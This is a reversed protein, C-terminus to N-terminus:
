RRGVRRRRRRAAGSGARDEVAETARVGLAVQELPRQGLRRDPGPAEVEGRARSSSRSLWRSVLTYPSRLREAPRTWSRLRGLRLPGRPVRSARGSGTRRRRRILRAAARRREPRVRVSRLAHAPVPFRVTTEDRAIPEGTPTEDLRIAIAEDFAFGLRLVADESADTANMVRVVIGDGDDAPKCASVSM